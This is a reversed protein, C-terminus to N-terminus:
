STMEEFATYDRGLYPGTKCEVLVTGEQASDFAHGGRLTVLIHGATLKTEAILIQREDFLRAHIEGRLVIWAEQTVREIDVDPNPWVNHKHPRISANPRLGIVSLQLLEAPPSADIRGAQAATSDILVHLLRDPDDSSVFRRLVLM